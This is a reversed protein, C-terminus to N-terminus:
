IALTGSEDEVLLIVKEQKGTAMNVYVIVHNGESNQCKYEYCLVEHEGGTPILAAQESLITLDDPVQERATAESVAPSAMTRITHNMLYGNSEFGTIQGNDLAVTVKVLDPYCLVSDQVAAFNITLLGGQQIFYSEAMNPYGRRTLFDQALALADDRSLAVYDATRNTLVEMVLGGVQTVEVYYYVGDVTSSFSYTPIKGGGASDLAFLAPDLALFRGAAQRAQEQTVAPLGDLMRPARNAVHESFPGDYILSPVEPFDGEVTQYASNAPTDGSESAASLRQEAQKVTDLEALGSLLDSQLASVQTSLSTASNALSGLTARDEDSCTGQATASRSLAAAYDGTKALFTATQELEVNSYPLEGLAMQASMAKGYIQTCLSGLVAPSTAYSGKQLNVNLESLNASLEAFAHRYSNELAAHYAAAARYGQIALGGLVVFAAMLYSTLLIKTQRTM